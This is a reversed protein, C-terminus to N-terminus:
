MSRLILFRVVPCLKRPRAFLICLLALNLGQTLLQCAFLCLLVGVVVIFIFSSILFHYFSLRLELILEVPQQIYLTQFDQMPVNRHQESIARRRLASRYLALSGSMEALILLSLFVVSHQGLM